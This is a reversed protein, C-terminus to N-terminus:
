ALAAAVDAELEVRAPRLEVARDHPEAVPQRAEAEHAAVAVRAAAEAQDVVPAAVPEVPRRAVLRLVALRVM